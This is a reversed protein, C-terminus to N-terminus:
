LLWLLANTFSISKYLSYRVHGMLMRSVSSTHSVISLDVQLGTVYLDDVCTHFNQRKISKYPRIQSCQLGDRHQLPFGFLLSLLLMTCMTRSYECISNYKVKQNCCICFVYIKMLRVASGNVTGCYRLYWRHAQCRIVGWDKCVQSHSVNNNHVYGYECDHVTPEKSIEGM